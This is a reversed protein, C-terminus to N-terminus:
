GHHVVEATEQPTLRHRVIACNPVPLGTLANIFGWHSVVALRDRVPHADTVGRFSRARLGIGDIPEEHDPWWQPPLHSFDLHPFREALVPPPSGYDCVYAAREGVLPEIRSLRLGIVGAIIEATEVARRYPSCWIENIGQRALIEGALRAQRRGEDTLEPDRIGPDRGTANFHKNFESQGHRVLFM